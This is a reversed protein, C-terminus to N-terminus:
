TRVTLWPDTPAQAPAKQFANARKARAMIKNYDDKLSEKKTNSQTIEECLELALLTSYAERFLADMENPDTILYIYRLYYPASENTLIKRGEVAYDRNSYNDEPYPNSLRVFDAPLTLSTAKGWEPATADAALTVRKIACNWDHDALMALLVAPGAVNCARANKSDEDVATIRKAGLKQLARNYM